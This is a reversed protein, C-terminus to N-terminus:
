TNIRGCFQVGLFETGKQLSVTCLTSSTSSFSVPLISSRLAMPADDLQHEIFHIGFLWNVGIFLQWYSEAMNGAGLVLPTTMSAEWRLHQNKSFADSNGPWHGGVWCNSCMGHCQWILWITESETLIQSQTFWGSLSKSRYVIVLSESSRQYVPTSWCPSRIFFPFPDHHPLLFSFSIAIPYPWKLHNNLFPLIYNPNGLIVFQIAYGWFMESAKRGHFLIAM